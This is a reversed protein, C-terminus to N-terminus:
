EENGIYPQYHSLTAQTGAHNIKSKDVFTIFKGLMM